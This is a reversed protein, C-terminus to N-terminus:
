VAYFLWAIVCFLFVAVYNIRLYNLDPFSFKSKLSSLKKLDTSTLAAIVIANLLVIMGQTFHIGLINLLFLFVTETGIGILFSYGLIEPLTYDRSIRFLISLGLLYCFLIAIFIEM